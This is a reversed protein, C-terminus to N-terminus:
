SSSFTRFRFSLLSSIRFWILSFTRVRIHDQEKYPAEPAYVRMLDAICCAVLLQVDKSSHNLFFDEILLISLPTYKNNIPLDSDQDLMQLQNALVKLRRILEGEAM